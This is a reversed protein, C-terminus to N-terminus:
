WPPWKRTGMMSISTSAVTKLSAPMARGTPCHCGMTSMTASAPSSILHCEISQAIEVAQPNITTKGYMQPGGHWKWDGQSYIRPQAYLSKYVEGYTGELARVFTRKKQWRAWVVEKGANHGPEGPKIYTNTENESTTDESM